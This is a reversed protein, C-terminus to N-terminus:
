RDGAACLQRLGREYRLHSPAPGDIQGQGNWSIKVDNQSGKLDYPLLHTVVQGPEARGAATAALGTTRRSLCTPGVISCAAVTFGAAVIALSLWPNPRRSM